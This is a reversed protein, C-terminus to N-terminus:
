FVLSIIFDLTSSKVLVAALSPPLGYWSEWTSTSLAILPTFIAASCIPWIFPSCIGMPNVAADTFRIAKVIRSGMPTTAEMLAKLWGKFKIIWWVTVAMAAPQGTITFGALVVGSEQRAKISIRFSAPNGLPQHWHIMQSLSV